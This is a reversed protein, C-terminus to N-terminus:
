QRNKKPEKGVAFKNSKDKRYYGTATISPCKKVTGKKDMRKRGQAPAYM